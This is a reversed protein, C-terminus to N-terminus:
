KIMEGAMMRALFKNYAAHNCYDLETIRLGPQVNSDGPPAKLFKKHSTGVESIRILNSM